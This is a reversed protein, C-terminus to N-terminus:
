GCGTLFAAVADAARESPDFGAKKPVDLGHDAGDLEVLTARPLAAVIPRLLSPTALADRTGQVCRMPIAVDALHRARETGPEGAPHLPFGLFVLAEIAPMAAAAQARSTMRGGMSKGGACLRQTKRAISQAYACASRALVEVMAPPDPRRKGATMAPQEWRLTAIRRQALAETMAEMFAHSMGAGAGHGFVYLWRAGRVDRHLGAIAGRPTPIQIPESM